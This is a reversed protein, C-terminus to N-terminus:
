LLINKSPIYGCNKKCYEPDNSYQFRKSKRIKMGESRMIRRVSDISIYDVIKNEIFYKKLKPLSWTTFHLGLKSPETSVIELMRAKQEKTFKPEAGKAKGRELSKLGKENFSKIASRIKRIDCGIKEAIQPSPRRESSLLLIKARDKTFAKGSKTAKRLLEIEESKLKRVYISANTKRRKKGIKYIPNVPGLYKLSVHRVKEGDRISKVLYKYDKGYITKIVTYTM